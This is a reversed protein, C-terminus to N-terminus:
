LPCQNGVAEFDGDCVARGGTALKQVPRAAVTKEKGTIHMNRSAAKTKRYEARPIASGSM